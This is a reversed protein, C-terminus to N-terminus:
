PTFILITSVGPWASKPPSTSRTRFITFPTIRKTSANSPVMGCVFNTSRLASSKSRSTMTQMLLISRGSARGSFTISSTKSSIISRSADSLCSSAGITNADAFCPYAILSRPSSCLSKFGSKSVIRSLMGAGSPSGSLPVCTM